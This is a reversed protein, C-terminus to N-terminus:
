LNVCSISFNIVVQNDLNIMKGDVEEVTGDLDNLGFYDITPNLGDNKEFKPLIEIVNYYDVMTLINNNLDIAYMSIITHGEEKELFRKLEENTNTLKINKLYIRDGLRYEESSFYENMRLEIKRSELLFDHSNTTALFNNNTSFKTTPNTSDLNLVFTNDAFNTSNKLFLGKRIKTNLTGSTSVDNENDITYNTLSVKTSTISKLTLVDNQLKLRKGSPDYFSIHLNSLMDKPNIFEKRHSVNRYVLNENSGNRINSEGIHLLNHDTYLKIKTLNTTDTSDLTFGTSFSNTYSKSFLSDLLFIATSSNIVSNSGNNNTNMEDIKVTLYKYDSLKNTKYKVHSFTLVSNNLIGIKNACHIDDINIFLNPVMIYNIDMIKVQKYVKELTGLENNSNSTLRFSFNFTEDDALWNRDKSDITLSFKDVRELDIDM